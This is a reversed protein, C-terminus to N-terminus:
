CPTDQVAGERQRLDYFRRTSALLLLIMEGVYFTFALAHMWPEHGGPTRAMFTFGFEVILAIGTLVITVIWARRSGRWLLYLFLLSFLTGGWGGSGDYIVLYYYIGSAVFLALYAWLTWPRPGAWPLLERRAADPRAPIVTPFM